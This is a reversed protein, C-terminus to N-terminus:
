PIGLWGVLAMACSGGTRGGLARPAPSDRREQGPLLLERYTHVAKPSRGLGASPGVSCTHLVTLGPMGHESSPATVWPQQRQQPQRGRVSGQRWSQPAGRASRM